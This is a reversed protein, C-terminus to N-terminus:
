AKEEHFKDLEANKRDIVKELEDIRLDKAAAEQLLRSVSVALPSVSPPKVFRGPNGAHRKSREVVSRLTEMSEELESQQDMADFGDYANLAADVASELSPVKGDPFDIQDRRLERWDAAPERYKILGGEDYWYGLDLIDFEPENANIKRNWYQEWEPINFRLIRQGEYDYATWGNSNFSITDHSGNAKFDPTTM